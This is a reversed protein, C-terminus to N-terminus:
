ESVVKKEFFPEMSNKWVYIVQEEGNDFKVTNVGKQTIEALKYTDGKSIVWLPTDCDNYLRVVAEGDEYYPESLEIDAIKLEKLIFKGAELDYADYKITSGEAFIGGAGYGEYVVKMEETKPDYAYIATDTSFYLVNNIECLGALVTEPVGAGKAVDWRGDGGDLKEYLVKGNEDVLNNGDVYYTVNDISVLAGEGEHWPANDYLTSDASYYEMNIDYHGKAMIADTSLLAYEHKITAVRSIMLDDWTVDIHYWEGDLKVINWLHGMENSRVVSCEIGLVNMVHLFAEAYAACVGSRDLIIMMSQDMDNINYDYHFVMFDHVAMVKEFDTMDPSIYLLIEETAKDIEAWKKEIVSKDTETYVPSIDTMFGTEVNSHGKIRKEIFYFLPNEFIILTYMAVIDDKHIELDSVDIEEELNAWAKVLREELAEKKTADMLAAKGNGAEFLEADADFEEVIEAASIGVASFAMILGLILSLFKKM